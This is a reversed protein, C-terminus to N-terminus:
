GADPVPPLALTAKSYLKMEAKGIAAWEEATALSALRFHLALAEERAKIRRANYDSFLEDFAARTAGYDANLQRYSRVFAETEESYRLHLAELQDVTQLLRARRDADDVRTTVAERLEQGYRGITETRTADRGCGGVALLLACIALILPANVRPGGSRSADSEM